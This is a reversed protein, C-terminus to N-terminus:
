LTCIRFIYWSKEWKIKHTTIGFLYGIKNSIAAIIFFCSQNNTDSSCCFFQFIEILEAFFFPWVAMLSIPLRLSKVLKKTLSKCKFRVPFRIHMLLIWFKIQNIRSQRRAFFVNFRRNNLLIFIIQRTWIKGSVPHPNLNARILMTPTPIQTNITM